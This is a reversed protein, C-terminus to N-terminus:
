IVYNRGTWSIEDTYNEKRQKRGEKSTFRCPFHWMKVLLEGKRVCFCFEKTEGYRNRRKLEKLFFHKQVHTFM